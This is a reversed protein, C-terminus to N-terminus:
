GSVVEALAQTAVMTVTWFVLFSEQRELFCLQAKMNNDLDLLVFGVKYKFANELNGERGHWTYADVYEVNSM